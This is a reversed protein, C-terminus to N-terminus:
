SRRTRVWEKPSGRRLLGLYLPMKWLLYFPGLAVSRVSVFRAGGAFWSLVLGIAALLAAPVLPLAPWAPAGTLWIALGAFVLAALDLLLLLTFPPIFLSVAAWLGRVDRAAIGKMLARPGWKAATDLYGGEWRRRQDFTDVQTAPDSWVMADEVLMAPHRADALELGIEMDEVINSTALAATVFLTWPLAMGTGVLHVRGALRQLARQRIVNKVFFAFTSLQITPPASPSPSQLYVAQCPRETAACHAALRELSGSEV